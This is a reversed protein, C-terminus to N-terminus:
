SWTITRADSKIIVERAIPAPNAKTNFCTASIFPPTYGTVQVKNFYFSNFAVDRNKKTRKSLFSKPLYYSIHRDVYADHEADELVLIAFKEIEAPVPAPVPTSTPRNTPTTQAAAVNLPPVTARPRFATASPPEQSTKPAIGNHPSASSRQANWSAIWKITFDVPNPIKESIKNALVALVLMGLVTGLFFTRIKHM